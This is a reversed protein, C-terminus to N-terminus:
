RRRGSGSGSAWDPTTANGGLRRQAPSLYRLRHAPTSPLPAGWPQSWSDMEARPGGGTGRQRMLARAPTDKSSWPKKPQSSLLLHTAAPAASTPRLTAHVRYDEAGYLGAVIPVQSTAAPPDSTRSWGPGCLVWTLVLPFSALLHGLLHSISVMVLFRHCGGGWPEQPERPERAALSHATALGVVTLSPDQVGLPSRCSSGPVSM